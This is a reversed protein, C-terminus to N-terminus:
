PTWFAQHVLYHEFPLIKVGELGEAMALVQPEYYMFLQPADQWIQEIAFEYDQARQEQDVSVRARDLAEDVDPNSYYSLNYAEDTHFVEYLAYDADLTISAWSILLMDYDPYPIEGAKYKDQQEFINASLSAWETAELTVDFGAQNMYGQVATAVERDQLYRAQPTLYLVKVPTEVGAQALLELSKEPDYGYREQAVYGFNSPALPVDAPTAAGEFLQETIADFDVAYNAAQRVLPDDFPPKLTNLWVYTYRASPQSIVKIGETGELQEVLAPPVSTILDVEGARLANIRASDDSIPIWEVVEFNPADGWYGDYSALTLREGPVYEDITYPGTGVLADGSIEEADTQGAAEVATKSIIKPAYALWAFLNSLEYTTDIEITNEDIVTVDDFWGMSWSNGTKANENKYRDLTFKVDDATFPSGDHFTAGEQLELAWTTPATKEWSTALLPEYQM